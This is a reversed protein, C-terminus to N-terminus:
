SATAITLVLTETNITIVYTGTTSVKLNGKGTSSLLALSAADTEAINGQNVYQEVGVEEGRSFSQYFLFEKEATLEITLSVVNGDGIFEYAAERPKEWGTVDDGYIYFSGIVKPLIVPADGTRKVELKNMKENDPFTTLTFVYKGDNSVKINGGDDVFNNEVEGTLKSFDYQIDWAGNAAIKFVDGEYLDLEIEFINEGVVDKKVLLATEHVGWGNGALSGAGDGRVYYKNIDATYKLFGAYVRVNNSNVVKTDFPFPVEMSRTTFWGKFIYSEDDHVPDTAPKVVKGGAEVEQDFLLEDELYFGVNFKEPSENGDGGCAVFALCALSLFFVSLLKKLGM